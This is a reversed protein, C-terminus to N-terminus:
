GRNKKIDFAYIFEDMRPKFCWEENLGYLDFQQFLPVWPLEERFITLAETYLEKRKTQDLIKSAEIAIEEIKDNSFHTPNWARPHIFANRYVEDPDFTFNGWGVYYMQDFQHNRFKGIFDEWPRVDVELHIGVEQLQEKMKFCIEKDQTFRGDPVEVKVSVGDEYGAEKLLQRSKNPNYEIPKQNEDVGFAQPYVPGALPYGCGVLEEEIIKEMNIGHSIAHRLKKNGLVEHHTNIGMYIIGVSPTGVVTVGNVKEVVEKDLPPFNAVVDYTNNKIGEVRDVGHPVAHFELYKMDAKGLFYDENRELYVKGDKRNWTKMKFPGTGSPLVSFEEVGAEKFYTESIIMLGALQALLNPDPRHLNVKVQYDSLVEASVMSNFRGAPPFIDSMKPDVMREISFKVDSATFKTGHHYYVDDRLNFIIENDSVYEWSTALHPVIEMESDRRVLSDYMQLLINATTTESHAFPDMTSADTGQAITLTFNNTM